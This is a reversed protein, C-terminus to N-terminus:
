KTQMMMNFKCELKQRQTAIYINYDKIVRSIVLATKIENIDFNNNNFTDLIILISEIPNDSNDVYDYIYNLRDLIDNNFPYNKTFTNKNKM